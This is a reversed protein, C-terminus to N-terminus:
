SSGQSAAAEGGDDGGGDAKKKGRRSFIAKWLDALSDFDEQYFIGVGYRNSGAIMETYQDNAHGFAKLRLRGSKNLLMELDVDGLLESGNPDLQKRQAQREFNANLIIRDTINANLSLGWDAESYSDVNNLTFGVSVDDVFHSLLDTLQSTLVGGITGGINQRYLSIDQQPVFRDILLLSLFQITVNDETSLQAQMRDRTENDATPADIEFKLDPATLRGTMSVKCDIPVIRKYRSTTTDSLLDSLPARVKYTAHINATATAVEGNFTITSGNDIKFKKNVLNQISIAYEGRQMTYTGFIQFINKTPEVEMKLNGSGAAKIVDGTNQNLVLMLDADNTVNLNLDVKLNSSTRHPPAETKVEAVETPTVFDIFSRSQVQAKAGLPISLSTKDNTTATVSISTEGRGGNIQVIGTAYGQGYFYDNHRETTNFVHFKDPEVKLSFYLDDPTTINALTFHLKGVNNKDDKVTMSSIQLTSNEMAVPGSMSFAANLYSVKLQGQDIRLKGNLLLHKLPGTVDIDGSLTGDVDSLVGALLPSAHHLNLKNLRALAQVESGPKLTGAVNLNEEGDKSISLQVALNKESEATSTHLTVEGVSKKFLTVDSAQVNGIFLPSPALLGNVTVEGSVNGTLELKENLTRLLPEVSLNRLTCSLTDRLDPSIVGNVHLLQLDNELRFSSITYRNDEVRIKSQSLIWPTDSLLLTSPFIEVDVGKKGQRGEFFLAQAKVQGSAISTKYRSTLALLSNQLTGTMELDQLRLNDVGVEGAKVSLHLQSGQSASNLNVDSLHLNGYRIAPASLTLKVCSADSSICGSLLASDAVMFAPGLLMQQLEAANKTLLSFTYEFAEATAPTGGHEKAAPLLNHYAPIFRHLISDVARAANAMGGKAKLSAELADSKLLLLETDESHKAELLVSSVPLEGQPSTYKASNITVKGTFNDINNGEFNAVAEMSLHSLSDRKNLGTAAFDAHHLLLKFDFQSKEQEFNAVGRFDFSMNPDECLLEGRFSNETILGKLKTRRYPYGYLEVVPINLDANLSLNKISAVTGSVKGYFSTKGIASDNVLKGLDFNNTGLTGNILVPSDPASEFSLDSILTGIDSRLVGNAVFSSLFGTFRAKGRLAGLQRLLTRQGAYKGNLVIDDALFLDDPSSALNKVDFIFFTNQVDPLGQMSVSAKVETDKGFGLTLNRGKLNSVTGGALGTLGVSLHLKPMKPAFFAITYLDVKSSVFDASMVVKEVYDSFDDFQEYDMRYFTANIDSFDDRIVLNKVEIFTPAVSVVGSLRHLNFGSREKLQLRELRCTMTDGDLNLNSVKLSVDAVAIHKFDVASDSVPVPQSHDTYSFGMRETEISHVRLQVPKSTAPQRLSADNSSKLRGILSTLNSAGATDKELNLQADTLRLT